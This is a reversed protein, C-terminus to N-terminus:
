DALAWCGDRLVVLRDRELSAAVEPDVADAPRPAEVLDAMLRGRAQRMSGDFRAQRRSAGATGEAPDVVGEPARGWACWRAVPCDGCAPSRRTCVTAGLDFLAQGWEWARGAPVLADATAQAEAARLPAGAWRALVRGVNTDVVGVRAGHAFVLVARATYPGVGPLVLLGDLDDPVRGGHHEVMATASLHLSRARRPYGLGQWRRLAESLPAAALDAPRPYAQAWEVWRPAVRDAQTQQLMVESVLVLWPDRTARWPLDRRNARGWALLARTRAGVPGLRGPPGPDGSRTAGSRILRAGPV